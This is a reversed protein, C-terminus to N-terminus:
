VYWKRKAYVLHGLGSKSLYDNMERDVMSEWIDKRKAELKARFSEPINKGAEEAVRFNEELADLGTLTKIERLAANLLPESLLWDLNPAPPNQTTAAM